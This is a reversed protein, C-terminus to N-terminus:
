QATQVGGRQRAGWRLGRGVLLGTAVVAVCVLQALATALFVGLHPLHLLSLLLLLCLGAAVRVCASAAVVLLRHAGSRRLRGCGWAVWAALALHLVGWGLGVAALLVGALLDGVVAHPGPFWWMRLGCVVTVAGVGASVVLWRWLLRARALLLFRAQRDSSPTTRASIM